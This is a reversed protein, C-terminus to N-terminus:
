SQGRISWYSQKSLGAPDLPLRQEPLELGAVLVIQRRSTDPYDTSNHEFVEVTGAWLTLVVQANNDSIRRFRRPLDRNIGTAETTAEFQGPLYDKAFTWTSATGERHSSEVGIALARVRLAGIAPIAM